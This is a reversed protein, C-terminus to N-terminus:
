LLFAEKSWAFHHFLLHSSTRRTPRLSGGWPQTEVSQTCAPQAANSLSRQSHTKGFHCQPRQSCAFGTRCYCGVEVIIFILIVHATEVSLSLGGTPGIQPLTVALVHAPQTYGAPLGLRCPSVRPFWDPGQANSYTNVRLGNVAATLTM